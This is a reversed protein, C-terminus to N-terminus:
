LFCWRWSTSKDVIFSWSNTQQRSTCYAGLRAWLALWKSVGIFVSSKEYV